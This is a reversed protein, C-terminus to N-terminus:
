EKIAKFKKLLTVEKGLEPNVRAHSDNTFMIETTVLNM